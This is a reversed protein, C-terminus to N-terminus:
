LSHGSELGCLTCLTWTALVRKWLKWDWCPWPIWWRLQRLIMRKRWCGWRLNHIQIWVQDSWRPCAAKFRKVISPPGWDWVLSWPWGEPYIEVKQYLRVDQRARLVTQRHFGIGALDVRPNSVEEVRMSLTARLPVREGGRGTLTPTGWPLTRPGM